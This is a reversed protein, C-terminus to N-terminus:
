NSHGHDNLNGRKKTAKKKQGQAPMWTIAEDSRGGGGGGKGGGQDQTDKSGIRVTESTEGGIRARAPNCQRNIGHRAGKM